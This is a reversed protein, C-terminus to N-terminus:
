TCDPVHDEGMLECAEVHIDHHQQAIAERRPGVLDARGVGHEGLRADVALDVGVGM